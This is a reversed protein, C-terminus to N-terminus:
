EVNKEEEYICELLYTMDEINYRQDCPLPLINKAYQHEISDEPTLSRINPWLEPIYIKRLALRKRIKDGREVYYPYCFAGDPVSLKLKNKPQLANYLFLYNENRTIRAKEYDIAGLLNKTVKSMYLIPDDKFMNSVQIFDQYYESASNELRGLLYKMRQMSQDTGFQENLRQDTALYAGDPVGFFKKCSYITDIGEIPKQFFSHTYDVIIQGWQEKLLLLDEDSLQGYFNVIFVWEDEALSKSLLPHFTEDINYYEFEIDNNTLMESICDCLFYPIYLKRIARAKIVYLLANRATNLSLLDHYYEHNNLQELEFYGGIEKM